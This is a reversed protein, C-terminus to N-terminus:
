NKYFNLREEKTAIRIEQPEVEPPTQHDEILKTDSSIPLLENHYVAEGNASVFPNSTFGNTAFACAFILVLGFLLFKVNKIHPFYKLM